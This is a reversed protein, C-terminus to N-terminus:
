PRKVPRRRWRARARGAELRPRARARRPFEILVLGLLQKTLLKFGRIQSAKADFLHRGSDSGGAHQQVVQLFGLSGGQGMQSADAQFLFLFEQVQIRDAATLLTM